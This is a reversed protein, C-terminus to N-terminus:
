SGPVSDRYRGWDDVLAEVVEVGVHYAAAVAPDLASYTESNKALSEAATVGDPGMTFNSTTRLVLVRDIDVRGAKDLATLAAMTGTDEMASTFFAGTGRTWYKVWDEAWRNFLEGHWFTSASMTDGKMVRPSLGAAPHGSYKERWVGLERPDPLEIGQTLDFAWDVLGPNLRYVIGLDETPMPEEYPRAKFLPVYGTSWDKPIERADIEFALDGDVVWEAWVASGLPATNPNAGSIGAVLWYARSLDFRSDLGLATITTAARATGVGTNVVLIEKDSNYALPEAGFPFPLEAAAPLRDKWMHLEGVHNDTEFMTVVVVRVSIPEASEASRGVGLGLIACLAACLLQRM